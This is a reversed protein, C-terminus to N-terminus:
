SLPRERVDQATPANTSQCAGSGATWESDTGSAIVCDNAARAAAAQHAGEGIAQPVASQRAALSGDVGPKVGSGIGFRLRGIGRLGSIGRLAPEAVAPAIRQAPRAIGVKIEAQGPREIIEAFSAAQLEAPLDEVDEIM